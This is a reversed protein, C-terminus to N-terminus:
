DLLRAKREWYAAIALASAGGVIGVLLAFGPALGGIAWYAATGAVWVLAVILFRKRQRRFEEPSDDM